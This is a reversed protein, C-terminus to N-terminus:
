NVPLSALANEYFYQVGDIQGVLKPNVPAGHHTRDELDFDVRETFFMGAKRALFRWDRKSNAKIEFYVWMQPHGTRHKRRCRWWGSYKM